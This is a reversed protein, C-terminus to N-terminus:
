RSSGPCFETRDAPSQWRPVHLSATLLLVVERNTMQEKNGGRVRANVSFSTGCIGHFVTWSYCFFFLNHFQWTFLHFKLSRNLSSVCVGFAFTVHEREDETGREFNKSTLTCGSTVWSGPFYLLSNYPNPLAYYPAGSSFRPLLLYVLFPFRFAHRFFDDFIM